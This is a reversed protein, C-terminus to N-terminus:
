KNKDGKQITQLPRKSQLQMPVAGASYTKTNEYQELKETLEELQDELMKVDSSWAIIVIIIFFILIITIVIM